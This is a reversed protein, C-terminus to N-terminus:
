IRHVLKDWFDHSSYKLRNEDNYCDVAKGSSSHFRHVSQTTSVSVSALLCGMVVKTVKSLRAETLPELLPLSLAKSVIGVEESLAKFTSRHAGAENLTKSFEAELNARRESLSDDSATAEFRTM